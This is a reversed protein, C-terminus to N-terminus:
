STPSTAEAAAAHIPRGSRKMNSVISPRPIAPEDSAVRWRWGGTKLLRDLADDAICSVPHPSMGSHRPFASGQVHRDLCHCQTSTSYGVNRILHLARWRGTNRTANPLGTDRIVAICETLFESRNGIRVTEGVGSRANRGHRRGAYVLRIGAIGVPIAIDRPWTLLSATDRYLVDAAGAQAYGNRVLDKDSPVAKEM